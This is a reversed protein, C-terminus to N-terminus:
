NALPLSITFTTGSVNLSVVQISGGHMDVIQKVISLGLGSGGSNRTRSKDGRWFREFLHPIDTDPIGPGDDVISIHAVHREQVATIRVTGGVKAHRIGNDVLNGIAQQLRDSDAQAFLPVHVTDSVLQVCQEDALPTMRVVVMEVLHRLDVKNHMLTLQGADALSLLRLDDIMRSMREVEDHLEGLEDNTPHILGDLMAELNSKMVTLPTRLEHAVDAVMQKRVQEQQEIQIAMQ